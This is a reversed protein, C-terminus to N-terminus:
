QENVRVRDGAAVSKSSGSIVATSSDVSGSVAALNEDSAQLTVSVRSVVNEIGLVTSKQEVALVYYGSNDSHLASLPLCFNYNDRSQVAQVTIRQGGQWSGEPLSIRVTVRDSDDPMSIGAIVAAATPNYYMSGGGTSVQCEDGVSLQEAEKETLTLQAEFGKEQDIFTIIPQTKTTEGESLASSITGAAEAYIVGETSALLTLQDVIGKQKEIDLKLGSATISNQTASDAAQQATKSFDQEAKTLSIKADDVKRQASLLSEERRDIATQIADQLKEIEAVRNDETQTNNKEYDNKAKDYAIQADELRRDQSLMNEEATSEASSLASRARETDAVAAQYAQEAAAANEPAANNWAQRLENEKARADFLASEASAISSANKAKAIDYDEEARELSRRANDLSSSDAAEPSEAMAKALAQEAALVDADAQAKATLYDEETRQLSREANSLSSNDTTEGRQLQSFELLLKDLSAQERILKETIEDMNLRALAVGSEVSQGSGALMEEITLGEPVTIDLTDKAAVTATGSVAEMVEGRSPNSIDVRALTAGSSGRAILTLILLAIIFKVINGAARKQNQDSFRPLSLFIERLRGWISPRVAQEATDADVTIEQPYSGEISLNKPQDKM